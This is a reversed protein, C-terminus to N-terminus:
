CGWKTCIGNITLEHVTARRSLYSLWKNMIYIKM